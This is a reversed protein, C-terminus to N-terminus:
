GTALARAYLGAYRASVKDWSYGAAATQMADVMRGPNDVVTRFTDVIVDASGKPDAFDALAIGAHAGALSRYADNIHLVPVLGAGMAEVAVLGFGEYDSASVFLSAEALRERIVVDEPGLHVHVHRGLGRAGIMSQLDAASLDSGIGIIDLHWEDDDAVLVAMTDLLRDLRKNLSFRGITALRKSPEARRPGSFKLADVGNEVLVARDGAIGGFLALDSQSCCALARYQSASARTLTNFWLKKIAAFRRTHFFGGHTTAIMPKRHVMRGLALADFFFDVAHVHILDADALQAFVAPALPYRKTGAWPIRCVEVGDIMEHAPLKVDLATFLRDCTVVRVRCGHAPLAKALNAVVDELGGRAPAYQRVVQVM